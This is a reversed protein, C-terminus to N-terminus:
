RFFPFKPTDQSDRLAQSPFIARNERHPSEPSSHCSLTVQDNGAEWLKMSGTSSDGQQWFPPQAFVLAFGPTKPPLSPAVPFRSSKSNGRHERFCPFATPDAQVLSSLPTSIFQDLSSRFVKYRHPKWGKLAACIPQKM